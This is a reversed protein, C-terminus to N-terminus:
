ETPYGSPDHNGLFMKYPGDNNVPTEDTVPEQDTIRQMYAARRLEIPTAWTNHLFAACGTCLLEAPAEPIISNSWCMTEIGLFHPFYIRAGCAACMGGQENYVRDYRESPTENNKRSFPNLM